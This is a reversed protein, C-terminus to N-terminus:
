AAADDPRVVFAVQDRHGPRRERYTVEANRIVRIRAGRSLLQPLFGGFWGFLGRMSSCGFAVTQWGLWGAPPQHAHEGWRTHARDLRHCIDLVEGPRMVQVQYPGLWGGSGDPVELRYVTALEAPPSAIV